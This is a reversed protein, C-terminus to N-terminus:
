PLGPSSDVWKIKLDPFSDVVQIKFDPFAEVVQWKGCGDPFSNVMKVRLDPFSAVMQIKLDPFSEVIQVKGYLSIDNYTCNADVKNESRAPTVWLIFGLTFLTGLIWLFLRKLM